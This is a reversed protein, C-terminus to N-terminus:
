VVFIATMSFSTDLYLMNDPYWQILADDYYILILEPGQMFYKPPYSVFNYTVLM